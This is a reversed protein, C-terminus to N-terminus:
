SNHREKHRTQERFTVTVSTGKARDITLRGNLQRVLTHILQMGLTTTHELDIDPPIGKGNDGLTLTYERSEDSTLSVFLKKKDNDTSDAFAHRLSNTVLENIILGCPIASEITLAVNDLRIDLEVDHVAYAQCLQPVLRRAYDGFDILALSESQYLNEHILAMSRVRGQSERLVDQANKDTVRRAQINLLSGIVQLNNKVRHHIERLLIEKEKLAAGIQEEARRLNANISQEQELQQTREDLRMKHDHLARAHRKSKSYFFWSGSFATAAVYALYAWWTKWPPPVVTITVTQGDWNWAGDGNSAALRLTYTGPSVNTYEAINRNGAHVWERDFGELMHAYHSRLSSGYDLAAFEISFFNQDYNLRINSVKAFDQGLHYSKGQVVFSTLAVPPVPQVKQMSDPHFWNFGDPGGFLFAGSRTRLYAGQNFENGQLGDSAEYNHFEKREVDLRSLGKNTSMWLNGRADQLIGYVTTNPLGNQLSFREFKDHFVDWRNLGGGATGIWLVGTTDELLTLIRNHSLTNPNSPDNRYHTFEGNQFKDIGNMMTGLWLGGGRAGRITIITNQGISKPNKADTQYRRFKGRSNDFQNLGGGYTGVWLTEDSDEYLSMICNSGISRQDNSNYQYRNFRRGGNDSRFLGADLTGVWLSGKRDELLATINKSTLGSSSSPGCSIHTVNSSGRVIMDLGGGNLGIWLNGQRDELFAWVNNDSLSNPNSALHSYKKFQQTTHSYRDLGRGNTGIWLNGSRDACLTMVDDSNLSKPDNPERRYQAVATGELKFLGCTETAIWLAGMRDFCLSWIKDAPSGSAADVLSHFPSFTRKKMDFRYLGSGWAGCWLTGSTSEAISNFTSALSKGHEALTYSTFSDGSSDYLCLGDYTGFWMDGSLSRFVKWVSNHSLSNADGERHTYIRWRDTEPEFRQVGGGLTGIWLSGSRDEQLSSVVCRDGAENAVVTKGFHLFLGKDRDFKDLEGSITGVWINGDRDELLASVSNDALSASDLPDHRYVVFSHGDYKNLGDQTGVWMFGFRDQLIKTVAGESLGDEVTLHTVSLASSQSFASQASPFILLAFVAAVSIANRERSDQRFLSMPNRTGTMEIEYGIGRDAKLSRLHRLGVM